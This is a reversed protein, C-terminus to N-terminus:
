GINEPCYYNWPLGYGMKPNAKAEIQTNITQELEAIRESGLNDKLWNIVDQSTLNEYQIFSKNPIYPLVLTGFIKSNYTDNSGLLSWHINNIVNSQGQLLLAYEVLEIKWTYTNM